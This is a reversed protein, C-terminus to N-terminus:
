QLDQDPNAVKSFGGEEANKEFYDTKVLDGLREVGYEILDPDNIKLADALSRTSPHRVKGRSNPILIPHYDDDFFVRRRTAKAILSRPPVGVVEM